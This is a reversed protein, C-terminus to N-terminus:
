GKVQGTPGIQTNFMLNFPKCETLQNGTDPAVCKYKAIMEDMQLASYTDALAIVLKYEAKQEATTNKSTMLKELHEITTTTTTTMIIKFSNSYVFQSNRELLHDARYPAHTSADNIMLDTFKGCHGSAKLVPEPTVSASDIELM